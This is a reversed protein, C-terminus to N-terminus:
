YIGPILRKTRACYVRYPEGFAAALAAEEERIRYLYVIPMVIAMVAVSIWNGLALGLGIFAILAGLYSPHRVHRYLGSDLLQHDERVAVNPTHFRGLQAVATSRVVIGVGLAILGTIQLGIAHFEGVSSFALSIATVLAVMNGVVVVILSFRDRNESKATKHRAVVIGDVCIWLFFVVIAVDRAAVM